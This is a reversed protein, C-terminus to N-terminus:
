CLFVARLLIRGYAITSIKDLLGGLLSARMSGKTESSVLFHPPLLIPNHNTISADKTRTLDLLQASDQACRAECGRPQGRVHESQGGRVAM